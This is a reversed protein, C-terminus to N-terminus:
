NMPCLMDKLSHKDYKLNRYMDVTLTDANNQCTPLLKDLQKQFAEDGKLAQIVFARNVENGFDFKEACLSDYVELSRTFSAKAQESEGLHDLIWGQIFPAQADHPYKVRMTDLLKLGEQYKDEKILATLREGDLLYERKRISDEMQASKSGSGQTGTQTCSLTMGMLLAALLNGHKM